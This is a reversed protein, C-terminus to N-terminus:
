IIPIPTMKKSGHEKIIHKCIKKETYQFTYFIGAICSCHFFIYILSVLKMWLSNGHLIESIGLSTLLPYIARNIYATHIAITPSLYLETHNKEIMCKNLLVHECDTKNDFTKGSYQCGLLSSRKYIGWSGFCATVPVLPSNFAWYRSIFKGSIDRNEGQMDRFAYLDSLTGTSTVRNGCIMDWDDVNVEKGNLIKQTPQVASLLESVPWPQIDQDLMVVYDAWDYSKSLIANLIINRYQALWVERADSSFADKRGM